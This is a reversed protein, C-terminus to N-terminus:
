AGEAVVLHIERLLIPSCNQLAFELSNDKFVMKGITEMRESFEKLDETIPFQCAFRLAHLNQLAVEKVKSNGELAVREELGDLKEMVQDPSLTFRKEVWLKQIESLIDGKVELREIERRALGEMADCLKAFFGQVAVQQTKSTQDLFFAKQALAEVGKLTLGKKELGRELQALQPSKVPFLHTKM